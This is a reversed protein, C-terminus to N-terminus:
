GFAYFHLTHALLIGVVAAGLIADITALRPVSLGLLRAAHLITFLAIAGFLIPGLRNYALAHGLQGSATAIFSRTLGCGPCEKGLLVRSWCVERDPLLDHGGARAAALGFAATLIAAGALVVIWDAPRHRIM